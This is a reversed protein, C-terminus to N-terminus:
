LTQARCFVHRMLVIKASLSLLSVGIWGSSYSPIGLALSLRIGLPSIALLKFNNQNPTGDNTCDSTQRGVISPSAMSPIVLFSAVVALAYM